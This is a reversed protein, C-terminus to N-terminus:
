KHSTKIYAYIKHVFTRIEVGFREIHTKKKLNKIYDLLTVFHLVFLLFRIMALKIRITMYVAFVIM